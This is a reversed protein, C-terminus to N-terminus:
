DAALNAHCADSWQCTCVKEQEDLPMAYFSFEEQYLLWGCSKAPDKVFNERLQQLKVRDFEDHAVLTREPLAVDVGTLRYPLPCPEEAITFRHDISECTLAHTRRSSM